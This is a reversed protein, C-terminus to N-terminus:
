EDDSVGCGVARTESVAPALEAEADLCVVGDGFATTNPGQADFGVETVVCRGRLCQPVVNQPICDVCAGDSGGLISAAADVQTRDVAYATASCADTAACCDSDITCASEDALAALAAPKSTCGVVVLALSLLLPKWM